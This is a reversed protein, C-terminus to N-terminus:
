ESTHEESRKNNHDRAISYESISRYVRALATYINGTRADSGGQETAARLEAQLLAIAKPPDGTSNYSLGLQIRVGAFTEADLGRGSDAPEYMEVAELADHNRGLAQLAVSHLCRARALVVPERRAQAILQRLRAEATTPLGRDLLEQVEELQRELPLSAARRADTIHAVAASAGGKPTREGQGADGQQLRSSM